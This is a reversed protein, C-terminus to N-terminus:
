LFKRQFIRFIFTGIALIPAFPVEKKKRFKYYLFGYLPAILFIINYFILLEYIGRYGIYFGITWLLKIDGFGVVEKKFISEGYGYLILFFIPFLSMGIIKNEFSEKFLFIRFVGFLFLLGTLSYPIIKKKLDIFAILFLVIFFLIEIIVRDM